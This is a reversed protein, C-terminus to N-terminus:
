YKIRTFIKGPVNEKPNTQYEDMDDQSDNLSVPPLSNEKLVEYLTSPIPHKTTAFSSKWLQRGAQKIEKNTSSLTLRLLPELRNIHDATHALGIQEEFMVSFSRLVKIFNKGVDANFRIFPSVKFGETLPGLIGAILANILKEQRLSRFITMISECLLQATSIRGPCAGMRMLGLFLVEFLEISSSLNHLPHPKKKPKAPSIVEALCFIFQHTFICVNM